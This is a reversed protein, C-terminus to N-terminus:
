KLVPCVDLWDRGQREMWQRASDPGWQGIEYTEPQPRDTQHWATVLPDIIRWALEVEDSRAFLSPDGLLVDLLLREYAEPLAKDITQYRFDLSTMRIKMGADPVKTLFHLQMGEAPQIHMVLQNAQPDPEQKHNFILHPPQRFQIVIQTTRCNMAKGSRLYFPVGQWRWNDIHLKIAGFTATRSDPAVGKEALYGEYRGAIGVADPDEAQLPRVAALVKVKENRVSDADFRAPPEMATFCLLQLLHNQFMDRLVGAQDYYAGRRGVKVEEAATIQVHDIYNRNWIPEFIANAFRVVQINQVTEKGLYHDIRFVQQESFYRHVVENLHRASALDTGFPKEIVVRCTTCNATMRGLEVIAPEFFQPATALYYVRTSDAGAELEDLTKELHTIADVSALDGPLYYVQKAFADWADAKFDKVFKETSERLLNRWAENTYETRSFGLVRTDAPLRGKASLQYLAPILKRSTLDGSAGLIVITHAM